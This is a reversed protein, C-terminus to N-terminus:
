NSPLNTSSSGVPPLISPIPLPPTGESGIPAFPNPRGEPRDQILIISSDHLSQFAPDSFISDDLRINKVNLLLVLFDQGLSAGADSGTDTVDANPVGETPSVVLNAQESSGRFYFVYALIVVTAIALFIIINKIKSFM